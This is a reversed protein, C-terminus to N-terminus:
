KRLNGLGRGAARGTLLYGPNTMNAVTMGLPDNKIDNYIEKRSNKIWENSPKVTVEDLAKGVEITDGTDNYSTIKSGGEFKHSIEGGEAYENYAKEIDDINTYGAKVGARIAAWRDKDNLESYKM